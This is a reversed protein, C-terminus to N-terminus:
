HRGHAHAHSPSVQRDTSDDDQRGPEQKFALWVRTARGCIIGGPALRQAHFLIFTETESGTADPAPMDVAWRTKHPDDPDRYLLRM